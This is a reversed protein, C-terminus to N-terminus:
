NASYVTPKLIGVYPLNRYKEDYDLGYGVVFENPCAFGVYDASITAKRRSPKDLLTCIRISAPQRAILLKRLNYLTVGTDLIDEVILLDRGQVDTFLDKLIRVTGTSNTGSGYSSVAMFDVECPCKIARALDSMFVFCGKLVGILLPNKDRYDNTIHAGLDRVRKAIAAEDYLVTEIDGNMM